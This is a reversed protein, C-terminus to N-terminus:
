NSAFFGVQDKDSEANVNSPKLPTCFSPFLRTRKHRDLVSHLVSRDLGLVQAIFLYTM